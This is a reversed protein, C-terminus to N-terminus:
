PNPRMNLYGAEQFTIVEWWHNVFEEKTAFPHKSRFVICGIAIWAVFALIIYKIILTKM